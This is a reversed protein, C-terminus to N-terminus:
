AAISPFARDAIATRSSGRPRRTTASTKGASSAGIAPSSRSTAGLDRHPLRGDQPDKERERTRGHRSRRDCGDQLLRVVRGNAPQGGVRREPGTRRRRLGSPWPQGWVEADRCQGVAHAEDDDLAVRRLEDGRVEDDASARGAERRLRRRDHGHGRVNREMSRRCAVLAIHELGHVREERVGASERGVIRDDSAKAGRRRREVRTEDQDAVDRDFGREGRVHDVEFPLTADGEERPVGVVRRPNRQAEEISRRVARPVRVRSGPKRATVHERVDRAVVQHPGPFM